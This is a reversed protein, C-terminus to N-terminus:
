ACSPSLRPARICLARASARPWAPRCALPSPRGLVRWTHLRSPWLASFLAFACIFEAQLLLLLVCRWVRASAAAREASQLLLPVPGKKTQRPSRAQKGRFPGRPPPGTAFWRARACTAIVAHMSSCRPVRECRGWTTAAASAWKAAASTTLLKNRLRRSCLPHSTTMLLAFAASRAAATGRARVAPHVGHHGKPHHSHPGGTCRLSSRRTAGDCVCSAHASVLASNEFGTFAARRAQVDDTLWRTLWVNSTRARLPRWRVALKAAATEEDDSDARAPLLEDSGSPCCGRTSAHARVTARHLRWM